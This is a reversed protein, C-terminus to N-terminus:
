AAAGARQRNGVVEDGPRVVEDEARRQGVARTREGVAAARDVEGDGLAVGARGREGADGGGVEIVGDGVVVVVVGAHEGGVERAAAGPVSRRRGDGEGAALERRRGGRGGGDGAGHGAGRDGAAGAVGRRRGD